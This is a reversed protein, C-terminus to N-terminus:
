QSTLQVLGHPLILALTSDDPIGHRELVEREPPYVLMATQYNFRMANAVGKEIGEFDDLAVISQSHLLRGIHGLDDKELRGDLFLLDIAPQLKAFMDTSSTMPYQNVKFPLKVDNSYDCTHVEAGGSVLALTSKGIYTGVEAVRKPKYAQVVAYLCWFTAFSVSGTPKATARLADLMNLQEVWPAKPHSVVNELLTEWIIRSTRKRNLNVM